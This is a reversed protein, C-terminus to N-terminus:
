NKIPVYRDADGGIEVDEWGEQSPDYYIKIKELGIGSNIDYNSLRPGRFIVKKLNECEFFAHWEIEQLKKPFEISRLSECGRFADTKIVELKQPLIVSELNGCGDFAGKEIVKLQSPLIVKSMGTGALNFSKLKKFGSLDLEGEIYYNDTIELETVRYEEDYVKWTIGYWNGPDGDSLEWGDVYDIYKGLVKVEKENYPYDEVDISKKKTDSEDERRTRNYIKTDKRTYETDNGVKGNEEMYSTTHSRNERGVDGVLGLISFLLWFALLSVIFLSVSSHSKNKLVFIKKMGAVVLRIVLIWFWMQIQLLWHFFFDMGSFLSFGRTEIPCLVTCLVMGAFGIIGTMPFFSVSFNMPVEGEYSAEFGFYGVLQILFCVGLVAGEKDEMLGSVQSIVIIGWCLINIVTAAIISFINSERINENKM